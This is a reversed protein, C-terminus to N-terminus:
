KKSYPWVCSNAVERYNPEETIVISSKMYDSTNGKVVCTVYIQGLDNDELSMVAGRPFPDRSANPIIWQGSDFDKEHFMVAGIIFANNPIKFTLTYAASRLWCYNGPEFVDRTQFDVRLYTTHGPDVTQWPAQPANYAPIACQNNTFDIQVPVPLLNTFTTGVHWAFVQATTLLLFSVLLYKKM